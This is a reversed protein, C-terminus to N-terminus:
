PVTTWWATGAGALTVPPDSAALFVARGVPVTMGGVQLSGSTCLVISPRGSPVPLARGDVRATRVAFWPTPAPYRHWGDPGAEAHLVPVPRDDVRVVHILEEADVYKTTMGGRLVNDSNAMVEVGVGHLYAHLNGADLFLGEGPQLVVHRLFVAAVCGIDDPHSETLRAVLPHVEAMRRVLSVQAKAASGYLGAFTSALGDRRLRNAWSGIGAAELEDAVEAAPRFGCLAEFPTLAVILEPKPNPDRYCREPADHPIGAAEERAFGARAQEASPHAQISLPHEAALVKVLFPLDGFREAVEAGLTGVPDARVLEALTGGGDLVTPGMHHTGFWVEAQPGGTAPYGLLEPLATPSGWAYSQVRGQLLEM